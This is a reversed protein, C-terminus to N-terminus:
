KKKVVLRMREPQSLQRIDQEEGGEAEAPSGPGGTINGGGTIDGGRRQGECGESPVRQV